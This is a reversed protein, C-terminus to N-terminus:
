SAERYTGSAIAALWETNAVYWQVTQRLGAHPAVAPRWGLEREIKSPDVAYRFDHGPRDTVHEILERYSTARPRLEDLLACLAHVLDINRRENRAGILYTEGLRGRGMVAGLAACHDSVHVWDRVQEGRGYVPIARGALANGIARPILKEPFQYPGYNNSCNTVIAPFGYTHVYAGVLHDSAAKSAAYPSRPAYRSDEAFVGTDGLAGFVEDTSVHVFRFGPPAGAALYHRCEDLLVHTGVINTSIFEAPADISRDVHSEAALHVVVDPRLTALVGRVTARDGIDGRVFGFRSSGAVDDLSRLNGAYTLKDLVLVRGYGPGGVLERVLNTGIFGAGGTVLVRTV